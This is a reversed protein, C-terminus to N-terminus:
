GPPDPFAGQSEPRCYTCYRGLRIMPTSRPAPGEKPEPGAEDQHKM